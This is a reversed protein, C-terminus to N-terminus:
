LEELLQAAEQLDRTRFGETFWDYIGRLEARAEDRKGQQSLLRSLRIAARLEFMRSHQEKARTIAQRYCDKAQNQDGLQLYLDGKVRYLDPQYMYEGSTQGFKLGENVLSMGQDAEGMEARIEALWCLYNSYGMSVGHSELISASKELQQIGDDHNGQWALAAGKVMLAWGLWVQIHYERCM